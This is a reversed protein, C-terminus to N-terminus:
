PRQPRKDKKWWIIAAKKHFRALLGTDRRELKRELFSALQRDHEDTVLGLYESWFAVAEDLDDFPQDFNYDIIEVNAFISLRHLACYTTLYDDRRPFEKQFLLPYLERYYFKDADPDAGTIIFVAGKACGHAERLFPTSGKILEPVNACVVVDHPAKDYEEWTTTLTKLNKLGRQAAEERLLEIMPASPDIATVEKGAMALPLALTGCGSGVDLFSSCGETKSLIIGLSKEPLTSYKLGKLYWRAKITNWFGSPKKKM